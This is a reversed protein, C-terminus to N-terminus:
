YQTPIWSLISMTCHCILLLSTICDENPSMLPVLIFCVFRNVFSLLKSSSYIVEIRGEVENYIPHRITINKQIGSAKTYYKIIILSLKLVGRGEDSVKVSTKNDYKFSKTQGNELYM